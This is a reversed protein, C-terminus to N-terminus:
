GTVFSSTVMFAFKRSVQKRKATEAREGADPLRFVDGEWNTRFDGNARDVANIGLHGIQVLSAAVRSSGIMTSPTVTAGASVLATKRTTSNSCEPNLRRAERERDRIATITLPRLTSTLVFLTSEFLPECAFFVAAPAAIPAPAPAAIPAMASAPEPGAYSSCRAACGSGKSCNKGSLGDLYCGLGPERVSQSLLHLQGLLPRLRLGPVQVRSLSVPVLDSNILISRDNGELIGRLLDYVRTEKPNFYEGHIDIGNM